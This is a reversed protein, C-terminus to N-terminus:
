DQMPTTFYVGKDSKASTREITGFGRSVSKGLGSYNPLKFNAVFSGIFGLMPNGKLSCKFEKVHLTAYIDDKVTYGLGKAMSLINGVLIRSLMQRTKKSSQWKFYTKVNKENLALWPTIFRYKIQSKSIGFVEECHEFYAEVVPLKESNFSIFEFHAFRSILNGGEEMGVILLDGDLAKYQVLPYRYLFKKSSSVGRDFALHHHALVESQFANGFFGRALGAEWPSIPRRFKFRLIAISIKNGM